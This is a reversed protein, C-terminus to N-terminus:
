RAGGREARERLGLMQRRTMLFVGFGMAERALGGGPGDAGAIAMRFRELLRTRREDIPDLRFTWTGRFDGMATSGLAGAARLGTPTPEGGGGAVRTPGGVTDNDMYLVLTREPEIVSVRFGGEPHTRVVDGVELGQWAPEIADASTGRMDIRDYSYWGARAYGMQLLWPWITSPPADITIARTEDLTADPVVDDGPLVRTREDPAALWSREWPRLVLLYLATALAVLRVLARGLRLFVRLPRSM